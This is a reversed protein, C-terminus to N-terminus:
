GVRKMTAVGQKRLRAITLSRKERAPFFFNPLLGPFRRTTM